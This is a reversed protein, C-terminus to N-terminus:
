LNRLLTEADDGLYFLWSSHLPADFSFTDVDKAVIRKNFVDLVTTKRLLTIEKVGAFRAHLTFLRDNAEVPDGTRSYVHVGVRAYIDRLGDVTLLTDGETVGAATRFRMKCAIIDPEIYLKYSGPHDALDEALVYDVPAGARALTTYNFQFVDRTGPVCSVNERKVSGDQNYRQRAFGASRRLKENPLPASKFMKESVVYAVEAPREVRQALCHEAVKRVVAMDAAFEPFDFETGECLAYFFVPERRCLAIGADRRIIGISQARTHVQWNNGNYPGNSTRTDNEIVPVVGNAALTEFPKMEGCTDGLRRIGYPQPSMLYDVAKADLLHKLAHHGRMQSNGEVHLTMLYGCYTGLLKGPGVIERAKRMLRIINGVTQQAYFDYYATCRSRAVPDSSAREAATPIHSDSWEPHNQRVYEAFAQQAVPSFDTVHGAQPFWSIWETFHGSNVRYGIIRNAYPASELYRMAKVMAREMVDLASKSAFSFPAPGDTSPKGTDDLIIDAPHAKVWDKPPYLVLDWVFYADPNERIYLEAQRDFIEPNFGDASPWWAECSSGQTVYSYVTVVSLPASSHRPRGDPRKIQRVGGWLAFFPKGDLHFQPAGAIMRVDAKVPKTFLNTPLQCNTTPLQDDPIHTDRRIRASPGPTFEPVVTPWADEDLPEAFSCLVLPLLAFVIKMKM